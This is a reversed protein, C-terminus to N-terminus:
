GKPHSEWSNSGKQGSTASTKIWTGRGTMQYFLPSGASWTGTISCQKLKVAGWWAECTAALRWRLREKTVGNIEAWRGGRHGRNMRGKTWGTEFTWNLYHCQLLGESIGRCPVAQVKRQVGASKADKKLKKQGQIVTDTYMRDSLADLTGESFATPGAQRGEWM